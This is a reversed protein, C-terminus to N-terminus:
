RLWHGCGIRFTKTHTTEIAPKEPCVRLRSADVISNKMLLLPFFFQCSLKLKLEKSQVYLICTIEKDIHQWFSKSPIAGDCRHQFM